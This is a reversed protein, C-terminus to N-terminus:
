YEEQVLQDLAKMLKLTVPHSPHFPMNGISRIPLIRPSTGTLFVGDMQSLEAVSLARFEMEIQLKHALGIVKQRIIGSLIESEPATILVNEKCFFVNSRSGETIKNTANVLISEYWHQKQHEAVSKKLELQYRKLQPNPRTAQLLICDVGQQYMQPTPYATRIYGAQRTGDPHISIRINGHAVPNCLILWDIAKQWARPEAEPLHNSLTLTQNLRLLHENLFLSKRNCVRFVEYIEGDFYSPKQDRLPAIAGNLLISTGIYSM